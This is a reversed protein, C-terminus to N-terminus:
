YKEAPSSVSNEQRSFTIKFMVSLPSLVNSAFQFSFYEKTDSRCLELSSQLGQRERLM